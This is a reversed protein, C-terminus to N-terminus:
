PLEIGGGQLTPVVPIGPTAPDINGISVELSCPDCRGVNVDTCGVHWLGLARESTSTVVLRENDRGAPFGVGSCLVEGRQDRIRIEVRTLLGELPKAAPETPTELFVRAPNGPFGRFAFSRTSPENFTMPLFAVRFRPFSVVGSDSINGDGEYRWAPHLVVYGAVLMFAGVGGLVVWLKRSLPVM